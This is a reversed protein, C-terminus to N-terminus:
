NEMIKLAVIKGTTKCKGKSVSGYSGKGIFEVIEYKQDIANRLAKTAGFKDKVSADEEKSDVMVVSPEPELVFNDAGTELDDVKSPKPQYKSHSNPQELNTLLSEENYTSTRIPNLKRKQKLSHHQPQPKEKEQETDEQSLTSLVDVYKQKRKSTNKMKTYLDDGITPRYVAGSPSTEEDPTHMYTPLKSKPSTVVHKAISAHIVSARYIKNPAHAANLAQDFSMGMLSDEQISKSVEPM